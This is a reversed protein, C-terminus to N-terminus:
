FFFLRMIQKNELDIVLGLWISELGANIVMEDLLFKGFRKEMQRLEVRGQKQLVEIDLFPKYQNDLYSLEKTVNRTPLGLFYMYIGYGIDRSFTRSRTNPM